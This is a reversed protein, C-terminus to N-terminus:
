SFPKSKIKQLKDKNYEYEVKKSKFSKVMKLIFCITLKCSSYSMFIMKIIVHIVEFLM